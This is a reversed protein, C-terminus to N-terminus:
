RVEDPAADRRVIGWVNLARQPEVGTQCGFRVTLGSVTQKNAANPAELGGLALREAARHDHTLATV